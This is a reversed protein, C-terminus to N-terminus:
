SRAKAKYACLFLAVSARVNRRISVTDPAPGCRLIARMMMEGKILSFFQQTAMPIDSIKLAGKDCWAKLLKGFAARVRLPGAEYFAQVAEPHYLAEAQIVRHLRISDSQLVHGAFITGIKLLGEEPTLTVHAAFDSADILRNCRQVIVERFLENKDAFHSYITLKSVNAKKAVAEMSTREFGGQMFLQGAAAIIDERKAADKPRGITQKPLLKM